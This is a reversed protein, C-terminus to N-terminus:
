PIKIIIPFVCDITNLPMRVRAIAIAIHCASRSASVCQIWRDMYYFHHCMSLNWFSEMISLCTFHAQCQFRLEYRKTTKGSCLSFSHSVCWYLLSPMTADPVLFCFAKLFPSLCALSSLIPDHKELLTYKYISVFVFCSKIVIIKIIIKWIMCVTSLTLHAYPFRTCWTM